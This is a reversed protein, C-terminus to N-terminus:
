RSLIAYSYLFCFWVSTNMWTTISKLIHHGFKVKLLCYCCCYYWRNVHHLEDKITGVVRLYLWTQYFYHLDEMLHFM